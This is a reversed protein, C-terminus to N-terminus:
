PLRTEWKLSKKEVDLLDPMNFWNNQKYIQILYINRPVIEGFM